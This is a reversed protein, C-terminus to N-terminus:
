SSRMLSRTAKPLVFPKVAHRDANVAVSLAFLGRHIVVQSTKGTCRASRTITPYAGSVLTSVPQV